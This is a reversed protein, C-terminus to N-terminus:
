FIDMEFEDALKKPPAKYGNKPPAARVEVGGIGYEKELERVADINREVRYVFMALGILDGSKQCGFCHWLGKSPTVHFSAGSDDPHDPLPCHAFYSDRGKRIMHIRHQDCFLDLPVALRIREFRDVQPVVARKHRPKFKVRERRDVEAKIEALWEEVFEIGAVRTFDDMGGDIPDAIREKLMALRWELCEREEDLSLSSMRRIDFQLETM